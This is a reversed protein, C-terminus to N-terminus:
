EVNEKGVIKKATKITTPERCEDKNLYRKVHRWLHDDPNAQPRAEVIIETVGAVRMGRMSALAAISVSVSRSQGMHCHILVTEGRELADVLSDTAQQFLLYSPNGGYENNPGDSMCYYEYATDKGVNDIIADQCVTIIRDFQDDSQERVDSIDGIYLQDTIANM